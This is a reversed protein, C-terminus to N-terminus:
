EDGARLLGVSFYRPAPQLSPTTTLSGPEGSGSPQAQPWRHPAPLRPPLCFLTLRKATDSEAVRQSEM